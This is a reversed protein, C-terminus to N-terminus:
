SKRRLQLYDRITFSFHEKALAQELVRYECISSMIFSGALFFFSSFALASNRACNYFSVPDSKPYIQGGPSSQVLSIVTTM